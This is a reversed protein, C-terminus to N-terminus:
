SIRAVSLSWCKGTRFGFSKTRPLFSEGAMARPLNVATRVYRKHAPIIDAPDAVIRADQDLLYVREGNLFLATRGDEETQYEVVSGRPLTGLPNGEADGYSVEQTLTSIYGEEWVEAPESATTEPLKTPPAATCGGALFCVALLWAICRTTRKM